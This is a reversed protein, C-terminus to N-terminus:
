EPLELMAQRLTTRQAVLLPLRQSATKPPQTAKEQLEVPATAM